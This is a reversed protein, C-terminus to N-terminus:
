QNCPIKGHVKNEDIFTASGFSKLTASAGAIWHFRQNAKLKQFIKAKLDM